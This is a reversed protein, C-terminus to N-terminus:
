CDWVRQRIALVVAVLVEVYYTVADGTGRKRESKRGYECAGGVKIDQRRIQKPHQSRESELSKDRKCNIRTNIWRKIQDKFSQDRPRM